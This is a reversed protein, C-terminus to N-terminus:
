NLVRCREIEAKLITIADELVETTQILKIPILTEVFSRRMASCGDPYIEYYFDNGIRANIHLQSNYLLHTYKHANKFLSIIREQSTLVDGDALELTFTGLHYYNM